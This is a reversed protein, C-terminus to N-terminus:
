CTKASLLLSVAINKFPMQQSKIMRSHIVNLLVKVIIITEQQNLIIYVYVYANFYLYINMLDNFTEEINLVSMEPFSM